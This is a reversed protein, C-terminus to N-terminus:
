TPTWRGRQAKRGQTAVATVAGSKCIVCDEGADTTCLWFPEHVIVTVLPGVGTVFTTTVSVKELAVRTEAVEIPGHM